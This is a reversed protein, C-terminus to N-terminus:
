CYYFFIHFLPFLGTNGPTKEGRSMTPFPSRNGCRNPFSPNDVYKEHPNWPFHPFIIEKTQRTKKILTMALWDAYQNYVTCGFTEFKSAIYDGCSDHAASNMVRPGYQCQADTYAYASDACFDPAPSVYEAAEQKKNVCAALLM